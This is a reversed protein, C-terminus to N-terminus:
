SNAEAMMDNPGEEDEEDKVEEEDEEAPALLDMYEELLGAPHNALKSIKRHQLGCWIMMLVALAFVIM